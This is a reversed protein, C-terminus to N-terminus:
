LRELTKLKSAKGPVTVMKKNVSEVALDSAGVERADIPMGDTVLKRAPSRHGPMPWKGQQKPGNFHVSVTRFFKKPFLIYIYMSHM